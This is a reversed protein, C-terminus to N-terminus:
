SFIQRLIASLEAMTYPKQLFGKAGQKLLENVKMEDRFGSHILVPVKSSVAQIHKFAESGSLGPMAMDLIVLGLRTHEQRYIDVGQQGDGATLVEYGFVGLIASLTQRIQVEDDIVLALGGEIHFLEPSATEAEPVARNVPLYLKVETGKGPESYIDVFGQHMRITNYVMSLGLGTGRGQGKTTFFPDFVHELTDKDMGVGSDQVSILWYSPDIAHPHVSQFLPDADVQSLRISLTGSKEEGEGRMLTMAHWSNICINLVAQSLQAADGRTYAPEETAQIQVQISKDMTRVCMRGTERLIHNLDCIDFKLEQRRTLSLLNKVLEAAKDAASETTETLDLLTGPNIDGNQIMYKALSNTNLIVTLINNFDHALGAALISITEMKQMQRIQEEKRITDTVNDLVLVAGRSNELALPYVTIDFFQIRGNRHQVRSIHMATQERIVQQINKRYEKLFPLSACLGPSTDGELSIKFAEEAASNSMTILLKEDLTILPVSVSQIIADLFRHARTLEQQASQRSQSEAQLAQLTQQIHGAMNNFADTLVDFEQQRTKELRVEYEGQAILGAASALLEIPRTLRRSLGLSAAVSLFSLGVGTLILHLLITRFNKELGQLATEYRQRTQLTIEGLRRHLQNRNDRLKSIVAPNLSRINYEQLLSAAYLYYNKFLDRIETYAQSDGSSRTLERIDEYFRAADEDMVTQETARKGQPLLMTNWVDAHIKYIINGAEQTLRHVQFIDREVQQIHRLMRHLLFVNVGMLVLSFFIVLGFAALIRNRYKM